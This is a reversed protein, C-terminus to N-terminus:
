TLYTCVSPRSEGWWNEYAAPLPPPPSLSLSLSHALSKTLARRQPQALACHVGHSLDGRISAASPAIMRNFSSRTMNTKRREQGARDTARHEAIREPATGGEIARSDASRECQIAAAGRLLPFRPCACECLPLSLSRSRQNRRRKKGGSAVRQMLKGALTPSHRTQWQARSADQRPRRLIWRRPPPPLPPPPAQLSPPPPPSHARHRSNFSYIQTSRDVLCPVTYTQSIKIRWRPKDVTRFKISCM